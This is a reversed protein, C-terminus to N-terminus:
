ATASRLGGARQVAKPPVQGSGSGFFGTAATSLAMGLGYMRIEQSYFLQMPNLAALLVALLLLQPRRRFFLWALWLQLLLGAGGIWVSLLRGTEPAANGWLQIWGHLLLYYLPPHIDRATLALMRALPETAFYVSYGEDWWLPQWDLRLLRLGGGAAALFGVLWWLRRNPLATCM